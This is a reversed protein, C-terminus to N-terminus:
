CFKELDFMADPSIIRLGVYNNGYDPFMVYGIEILPTIVLM